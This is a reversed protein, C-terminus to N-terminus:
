WSTIASDEDAGAPRGGQNSYHPYHWFLPRAPLAGKRDLLPVISLADLAQGAPVAVGALELLTPYLDQSIVPV